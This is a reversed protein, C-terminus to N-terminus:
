LKDIDAILEVSQIFKQTGARTPLRIKSIAHVADNALVNKSDFNKFEAGDEISLLTVKYLKISPKM